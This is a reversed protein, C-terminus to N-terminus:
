AKKGRQMQRLASELQKLDKPLEANWTMKEGPRDPHELGLTAAHLAQREFSVPATTGAGPRYHENYIRDGVLPLGEAAAQARIQHKLGTELRLRLKSLVTRGGDLTYEDLVEFHTVAQCAEEPPANPRVNTLVRQRIEDRSLELWHRWTGERKVARGEVFAIYERRITHARLQEILRQRARPNMAICFAGSTYKDLRHVPMPQLRRFAAPLSRGAIARDQAKLKGSLFDAVVSLASLESEEAPVSIIGPGKNIIGVSGDLHLLTVRPHIQWGASADLSTAERELLRLTAGPDPIREHPKRLVVGAVSVRGAAVWQKARTKPTEPYRLLLWDLLPKNMGLSDSTETM